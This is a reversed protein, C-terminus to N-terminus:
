KITRAAANLAERVEPLRARSIPIVDGNSVRLNGQRGAKQLDVVHHKAVWYSRHVQLGSETPLEAIANRLNYLILSRGQTTVVNIYHLEARLYIVDGAVEKPLEAFFAPQQAAPRQPEIPMQSASKVVRFGLLFPANIAIWCVVVPPGTALFENILADLHFEGRGGIVIDVLLALPSFLLAGLAGTWLLAGFQGISPTIPLRLVALQTMLLLVMPTLTQLQWQILHTIWASLGHNNPESIFAFALGLLAAVSFFWLRVAPNRTPAEGTVARNVDVSEDFQGNM